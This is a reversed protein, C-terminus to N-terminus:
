PCDNRSLSSVPQVCSLLSEQCYLVQNMEGTGGVSSDLEWTELRGPSIWLGNLELNICWSLLWMLLISAVRGSNDQLHVNQTRPGRSWLCSHQNSLCFTKM